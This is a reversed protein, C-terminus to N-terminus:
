MTNREPKFLVINFQNQDSSTCAAIVDVNEIDSLSLVEPDIPNGELIIESPIERHIRALVEKRDEVVIVKHDHQYLYKALQAGTRGGGAILVYM